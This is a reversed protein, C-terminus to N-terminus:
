WPAQQRCPVTVAWLPADAIKAVSFQHDRASASSLIHAYRQTAM